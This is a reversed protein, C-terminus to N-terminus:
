CPGAWVSPRGQPDKAAVTTRSGLEAGFVRRLEDRSIGVVKCTVGPPHPPPAAPTSPDAFRVRGAAVDGADLFRVDTSRNRDLVVVSVDATRAVEAVQVLDFTYADFRRDVPRGFYAMASAAGVAALVAALLGATVAPRFVTLRAEVAQACGLGVLAAVPAALGLSRLFHPAPDATALLPPLLFVPVATLVLAGLREDARRRWARWAGLAALLALPIGLLPLGDVDHRQNPDGTFAFMGLTRLTHDVLTPIGPHQGAVSVTVARGFYLGPQTLAVLLQPAGVVLYAVGLAPLGRRMAPWRAPDARRAWPLWVILLLPLLKLPQYTWLGLAMIGGALVAQKGSPHDAWATMAWMALVGVLPVLVNRMGDRSVCLLWLSGAVWASAGLAASRGLPRLWAFVAVVTLIGLVASTARLTAVSEGALRFGVAVLYGYLAERGADDPFFVPHYGAQHLLRHADLGEAAEDPYLGGPQTELSYLRLVAAVAM